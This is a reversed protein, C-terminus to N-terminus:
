NMVRVKEVALHMAKSQGRYTSKEMTLSISVIGMDDSMPFSFAIYRLNESLTKNTTGSTMILRNDSQYFSMQTGQQKTFSIKSYPPQGPHKTLLISNADGQRLNRNLLGLILRADRQVETRARSMFFFENIKTFMVGGVSALITVLAVTIMLEVLTVGKKNRVM